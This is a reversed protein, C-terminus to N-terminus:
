EDSSSAEPSETSPPSTSNQATSPIAGIGRLAFPIDGPTANANRAAEWLKLLEAGNWEDSNWIELAEELSMQPQICSASILAPPFTEANFEAQFSPLGLSEAQEKALKRDKETPPHEALLDDYGHRGIAKFVFEAETDESDRVLSEIEGAIDNSKTRQSMDPSTRVREEARARNYEERLEEIRASVEGDLQVIVRVVRGKKRGRIEAFTLETRPTRKSKRVPATM